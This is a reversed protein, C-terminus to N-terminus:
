RHCSSMMSFVRYIFQRFSDFPYVYKNPINRVMVSTRQDTGTKVANIDLIMSGDDEPSASLSNKEQIKHSGNLGNTYPDIKKNSPHNATMSGNMHHHMRSLDHSNRANYYPSVSPVVPIDNMYGSAQIVGAQGQFSHLVTGSQIAAQGWVQQGDPNYGSYESNSSNIYSQVPIGPLYQQPYNPQALQLNSVLSPPDHPHVLVFSQGNPGMVVQNMQQQLPNLHQHTIHTSAPSGSSSSNFKSSDSSFIGPASYEESHPGERPHRYCPISDNSANITTPVNMPTHNLVVNLGQKDGHRWQAILVLLKQGVKRENVTRSRHTVNASGSPNTSELELLAQRADQIDHFEVTCSVLEHGDSDARDSHFYISRIMGYSKMMSHFRKEDLTASLNSILLISEDMPSSSNLSTSFLVDLNNKLYERVASRPHVMAELHQKLEHAALIASRLDHYALFILGRDKSFEPRFYSLSGFYDCATKVDSVDFLRTGVLVLARSPPRNENEDGGQGLGHSEKSSPFTSWVFPTLEM